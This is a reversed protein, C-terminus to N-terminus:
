VKEPRQFDEEKAPSADRKRKGNATQDEHLKAPSHKRGKSPEAAKKSLKDKGKDEEEIVDEWKCDDHKAETKTSKTHESAQTSQIVIPKSPRFFIKSPTTGSTNSNDGNDNGSTKSDKGTM